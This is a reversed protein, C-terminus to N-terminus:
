VNLKTYHALLDRARNPVALLASGTGASAQRGGYSRSYGEIAEATVGEGSPAATWDRLTWAVAIKVDEPITPWGWTATVKVAPRQGVWRGEAALVDLNRTFGMEPSPPRLGWGAYMELYYYMQSDDRRPPGAKWQETDLPYDAVSPISLSVATITQADDIDVYGSGDYEFIREETVVPAAFDRETFSLVAASVFPISATIQDDRTTDTTKLGNIAKYEALTILAAM